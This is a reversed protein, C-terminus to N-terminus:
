RVLVARASRRGHLPRRGRARDAHGAAPLRQAADPRGSRGRGPPHRGGRRPARRRGRELAGGRVAAARRPRRAPGRAHPRGARTSRSTSTSATRTASRSTPRTTPRTSSASVRRTSSTDARRSSGRRGVDPLRELLGEGREDVNALADDEEARIRDVTTFQFIGSRRRRATWSTGCAPM